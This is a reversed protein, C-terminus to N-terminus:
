WFSWLGTHVVYLGLALNTAAHAIIVPWLSRRWLLYGNYLLGAAIGVAWRHHSLGFLVAVLLFTRWGFRGVPRERFDGGPPTELFRPLFSRIFLEEFLPVLFVAGCLRVSIALFYLPGAETPDYSSSGIQFFRVSEPAIWVVFVLLGFCVDLPLRRLDYPASLEPFAGRRLYLALLGTCLVLKAPYVWLRAQTGLAEGVATLLLFLAYTAVYPMWGAARFVGDGAKGPVRSSQEGSM